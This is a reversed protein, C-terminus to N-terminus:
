SIGATGHQLPLGTAGACLPAETLAGSLRLEMKCGPPSNLAFLNFPLTVQQSGAPPACQAVTDPGQSQFLLGAIFSPAAKPKNTQGM